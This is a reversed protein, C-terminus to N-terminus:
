SGTEALLNWNPKGKGQGVLTEERVQWVKASTATKDPHQENWHRLSWDAFHQRLPHGLPLGALNMLFKRWRDDPYIASVLGPREKSFPRGTLADYSNGDPCELEVSFWGSLELGPGAFVAWHQQSIIAPAVALLTPPVLVARGKGLSELNVAWTLLCIGLLPGTSLATMEFRTGNDAQLRGLPILALLGVLPTFRFIGIELFFGFTLHMFIALLLFATRLKPWPALVMVALLLEVVIVLRTLVALSEEYPLLLGAWGTAHHGMSLALYVATGQETWYPHTKHAAAFLYLCVMQMSWGVTAASCISAAHDTPLPSRLADVSWAGNWPLFVAWFLLVAFLSDGSNLILPNRTQLSVLLYWSAATVLRTRYGVAVGLGLGIQALLLVVQYLYQDNAVHLAPFQFSAQTELFLQRPAVGAQSYFEEAFRLRYCSDVVLIIGAAMRALALARLDLGFLRAWVKM